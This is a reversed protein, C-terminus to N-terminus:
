KIMMKVTVACIRHRTIPTTSTRRISRRINEREYVRGQPSNELQSDPGSVHYNTDWPPSGKTNNDGGMDASARHSEMHKWYEYSSYKSRPVKAIPVIICALTAKLSIYLYNCQAFVLNGVQHEEIVILNM